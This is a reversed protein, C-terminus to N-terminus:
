PHMWGTLCIEEDRIVACRVPSTEFGHSVLGVQARGAPAGASVLGGVLVVPVCEGESCVPSRGGCADQEVWAGLLCRHPLGERCERAGDGCAGADGTSEDVDSSDGDASAEASVTTTWTVLAPLEQETTATEPVSAASTSGEEAIPLDDEFCGFLGMAVVVLAGRRRRRLASVLAQRPGDAPWSPAVDAGTVSPRLIRRQRPPM